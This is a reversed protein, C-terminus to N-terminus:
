FLKKIFVISSDYWRHLLHYVQDAAHSFKPTDSWTWCLGAQVIVSDCYFISIQSQHLIPITCNMYHFCFQQDAECNIHLQDADKNECLCFNKCM